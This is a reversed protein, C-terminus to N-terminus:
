LGIDFSSGDLDDGLNELLLDTDQPTDADEGLARLKDEIEKAVAPNEELYTKAKERGQGIREGNYSFWAGSKEVINHLVAM